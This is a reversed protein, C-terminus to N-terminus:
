ADTPSAARAATPTATAVPTAGSGAAPSAAPTAEVPQARPAHAPGYRKVEGLREIIVSRTQQLVAWDAEIRRGNFDIDYVLPVPAGALRPGKRRHIGVNHVVWAVTLTPMVVLAGIILNRLASGDRPQQLVLWWCFAFLLWGAAVALTHLLVHWRTPLGNRRPALPSSSM